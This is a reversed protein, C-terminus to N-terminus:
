GHDTDEVKRSIRPDIGISLDIDTGIFLLGGNIKRFQSQLDKLRRLVVTDVCLTTEVCFSGDSRKKPLKIEM